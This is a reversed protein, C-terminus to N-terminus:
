KKMVAIRYKFFGGSAASRMVLYLTRYEMDKDAQILVITPDFEDEQGVEADDDVEGAERDPEAGTRVEYLARMLDVLEPIEGKDYHEQKAVGKELPYVNEGGLIVGDPTVAVTVAPKFVSKASSEPLTLDPNLKFEYDEASFSVILFILIITFMDLLPTLMLGPAKKKKLASKM